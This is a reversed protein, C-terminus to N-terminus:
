GQGLSRFFELLGKGGEERKSAEILQELEGADLWIGGSTKCRDVIVGHLAVKEMPEGSVPSLLPASSQKQQSLRELAERNKRQFYEEEQAKRREDWANSM